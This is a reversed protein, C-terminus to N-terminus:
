GIVSFIEWATPCILMSLKIAASEANHHCQSSRKKKLHAM